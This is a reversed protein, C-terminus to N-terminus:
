LTTLPKAGVGECLHFECILTVSPALYNAAYEPEGQELNQSSHDGGLYSWALPVM